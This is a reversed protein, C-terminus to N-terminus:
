NANQEDTETITERKIQQILNSKQCLAWIGFCYGTVATIGFFPAGYDLAMKGYMSLTADSFAYGTVIGVFFGLCAAAISFWRLAESNFASISMMETEFLHYM